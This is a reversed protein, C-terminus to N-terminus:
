KTGKKAESADITLDYMNAVRAMANSLFIFAKDPAVENALPLHQKEQESLRVSSNDRKMYIVM